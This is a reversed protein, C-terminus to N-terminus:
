LVQLLVRESVEPMDTTEGLHRVFREKRVQSASGLLAPLLLAMADEWVTRTPDDVPVEWSTTPALRLCLQFFADVRRPATCDPVTHELAQWTLFLLHRSLDQTDGPPTMDANRYAQQLLDRGAVRDIVVLTCVSEEQSLGRLSVDAEHHTRAMLIWAVNESVADQLGRRDDVSAVDECARLVPVKRGLHSERELIEQMAAIVKRGALHDRTVVVFRSFGAHLALAFRRHVAEDIGIEAPPTYRWRIHDILTSPTLADFVRAFAIQTTTDDADRLVHLPWAALARVLAGELAAQNDRSIDAGSKELPPCILMAAHVDVFNAPAARRTISLRPALADGAPPEERTPWANPTTSTESSKTELCVRVPVSSSGLPLAPNVIVVLRCEHQNFATWRENERDRHLLLARTVVIDVSQTLNYQGMVPDVDVTLEDPDDLPGQVRVIWRPPKSALRRDFTGAEMDVTVVPESGCTRVIAQKREIVPRLVVKLAAFAAKVAGNEAYLQEKM